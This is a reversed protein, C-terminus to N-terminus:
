ASYMIILGEREELEYCLLRGVGSHVLSVVRAWHGAWDKQQQQRRKMKWKEIVLSDCELTSWLGDARWLPDAQNGDQRAGANRWGPPTKGSTIPNFTPESFNTAWPEQQTIKKQTGNWCKSWLAFFDIADLFLQILRPPVSVTVECWSSRFGGEGSYVRFMLAMLVQSFPYVSSDCETFAPSCM